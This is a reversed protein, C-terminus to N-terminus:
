VSSYGSERALKSHRRHHQESGHLAFHEPKIEGSPLSVAHVVSFSLWADLGRTLNQSCEISDSCSHCVFCAPGFIMELFNILPFKLALNPWAFYLVHRLYACSREFSDPRAM